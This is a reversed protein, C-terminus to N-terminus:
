FHSGFRRRFHSGKLRRDCRTRKLIFGSSLTAILALVSPEPVATITISGFAAVGPSPLFVIPKGAALNGNAYGAVNFLSQLPTPPIEIDIPLVTGVAVTGAVNVRLDFLRIPTLGLTVNEGSGTPISDVNAFVISAPRDFGTNSFIAHAIVPSEYSFGLPLSANGDRNFDLPLNFGTMIDGSTSTAYVGVIATQGAFVTVNDVTLVIGARTQSFSMFISTISFLLSLCRM